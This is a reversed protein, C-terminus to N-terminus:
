DSRGCDNCLAITTNCTDCYLEYHVNDLNVTGAPITEEPHQKSFHEQLIERLNRLTIKNSDITHNM